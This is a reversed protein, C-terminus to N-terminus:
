NLAALLRKKKVPTKPHSKVAETGAWVQNLLGEELSQFVAPLQVGAVTGFAEEAKAVKPAEPVVMTEKLALTVRSLMRKL